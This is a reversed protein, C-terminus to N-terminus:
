EEAEEKEGEESAEPKKADSRCERAFHGAQRVQPVNEEPTHRSPRPGDTWAKQGRPAPHANKCVKAMQTTLRNQTVVLKATQHAADRGISVWPSDATAALLITEDVELGAERCAFVTIKAAARRLLDWLILKFGPGTLWAPPIPGAGNSLVGKLLETHGEDLGTWVSEVLERHVKSKTTASLREVLIESVVMADKTGVLSKLVEEPKVASAEGTKSKEKSAPAEKSSKIEGLLLAGWALLVKEDTSTGGV